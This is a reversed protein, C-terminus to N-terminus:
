CALVGGEGQGDRGGGGLEALGGGGGDGGGVLEGVAVGTGLDGADEVVAAQGAAFAAGEVPEDDGVDAVFVAQAAALLSEAVGAHEGQGLHGVAEAHGGFGDLYPVVGSEDGPVGEVVFAFAEVRRGAGVRWGPCLSAFEAFSAGSVVRSGAM